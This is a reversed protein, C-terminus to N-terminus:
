ENTEATKEEIASSLQQRAMQLFQAEGGKPSGKQKWLDKSLQDAKEQFLRAKRDAKKELAGLGLHENRLSNLIDPTIEHFICYKNFWGEIGRGANGITLSCKWIEDLFLHTLLDQKGNVQKLCKNFQQQRKKDPQHAYQTYLFVDILRKTKFTYTESIINWRLDPISDLQSEYENAVGAIWAAYSHNGLANMFIPIIKLFSAPENPMYLRRFITVFSRIGEDTVATELFPYSDLPKNGSLHLCGPGEKMFTSERLEQLDRTFYGLLRINEHTLSMKAINIPKCGARLLELDYKKAGCPVLVADANGTLIPGIESLTIEKGTEDEFYDTLSFTKVTGAANIQETSLDALSEEKFLNKYKLFSRETKPTQCEIALEVEAKKLPPLSNTNLLLDRDKFQRDNRDLYRIKWSLLM